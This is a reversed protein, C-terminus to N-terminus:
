DVGHRDAKGLLKGVVADPDVAHPGAEDVRFDMGVGPLGVADLAQAGADRHLAAALRFFHRAGDKPQERGLRGVRGPRNEIDRTAALDATKASSPGVALPFDPRAISSAEFYGISITLM